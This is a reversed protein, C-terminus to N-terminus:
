FLKEYREKTSFGTRKKWYTTAKPDLKQDLIDKKLFSMVWNVPSLILYFLIGLIVRLVVWSIVEAVMMWPRYIFVLFRPIMLSLSFFLLALPWEFKYQHHGRFFAIIGLVFLIASLIFGFQKVTKIDSKISNWKRKISNM